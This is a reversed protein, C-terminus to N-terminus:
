LQQQLMHLVCLSSHAWLVLNLAALHILGTWCEYGQEPCLSQTQGLKLSIKSLLQIESAFHVSSSKTKVQDTCIISNVCAIFVQKCGATFCSNQKSLQQSKILLLIGHYSYKKTLMRTMRFVKILTQVSANVGPLQQLDHAM